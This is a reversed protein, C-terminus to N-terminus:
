RVLFTQQTQADEGETIEGDENTDVDLRVKTFASTYKVEYFQYLDFWSHDGNTAIAYDRFVYAITLLAILNKCRDDNNADGNSDTLYDPDVYIQSFKIGHSDKLDRKFQANAEDAYLAITASNGIADVYDQLDRRLALIQADTPNEAM